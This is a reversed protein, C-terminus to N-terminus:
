AGRRKHAPCEVFGSRFAMVVLQVRDRACLKGLLRAVHSKVTAISIFLEAAIEANSLGRAVCRLVEQERRSLLEAWAPGAPDPAPLTTPAPTAPAPMPGPAPVSRLIGHRTRVTPIPRHTPPNRPCPMLSM